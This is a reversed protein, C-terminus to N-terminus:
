THINRTMLFKNKVMEIFFVVQSNGPLEHISLRRAGLLELRPQQPLLCLFALLFARESRPKLAEAGRVWAIRRPFCVPLHSLLWSSLTSPLVSQSLSAAPPLSFACLLKWKKTEVTKSQSTQLRVTRRCLKQSIFDLTKGSKKEQDINIQANDSKFSLIVM